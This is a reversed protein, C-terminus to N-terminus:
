RQMELAVRYAEDFTDYFGTPDPFFSIRWSDTRGDIVRGGVNVMADAGHECTDDANIRFEAGWRPKGHKKSAEAVLQILGLTATPLDSMLVRVHEDMSRLLKGAAKDLEEQATM